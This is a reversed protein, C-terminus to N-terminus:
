TFSRRPHFLPGGRLLHPRKGLALVSDHRTLLERRKAEGWVGDLMPNCSTAQM